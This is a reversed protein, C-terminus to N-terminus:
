KKLLRDIEEAYDASDDIHFNLEPVIRLQNKVVLALSKRILKSHSKVKNITDEADLVPFMSLFVNAYALDPSIRVSTVSLLVSGIFNKSEKSFIQSLEKQILRSVKKQRTSEM